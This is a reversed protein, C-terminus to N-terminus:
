SPREVKSTPHFREKEVWEWVRDEDVDFMSAVHRVLDCVLLGYHEYSWGDQPYLHCIVNKDPTGFMVVYPNRIEFRKDAETTESM